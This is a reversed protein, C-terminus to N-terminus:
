IVFNNSLSELKPDEQSRFTFFHLLDWSIHLLDLDDEYKKAVFHDVVRENRDNQM